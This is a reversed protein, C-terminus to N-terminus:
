MTKQNYFKKKKNNKNILEDIKLQITKKEKKIFKEPILMRRLKIIKNNANIINIYSYNIESIILNDDKLKIIPRINPPLVPLYKIAIWSLLIKNKILCHSIRLQSKYNNLITKLKKMNQRKIKNKELM